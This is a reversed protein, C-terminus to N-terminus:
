SRKGERKEILFTRWDYCLKLFEKTDFEEKEISPGNMVLEVIKSRVSGWLFGQVIIAGPLSFDPIQEAIMEELWEIFEDLDELDSYAKIAVLDQYPENVLFVDVIRDKSLTYKEIRYTIM